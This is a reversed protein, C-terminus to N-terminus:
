HALYDNLITLPKILVAMYKPIISSKITTHRFTWSHIVNLPIQSYKLQGQNMQIQMFMFYICWLKQREKIVLWRLLLEEMREIM